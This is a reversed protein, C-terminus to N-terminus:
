SRLDLVRNRLRTEEGPPADDDAPLFPLKRTVANLLTVSEVAVELKGTPIRLNPDKRLRVTGEVRVVYEPRLRQCAAAAAPFEDPQSVM